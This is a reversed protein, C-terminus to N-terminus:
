RSEFTLAGAELVIAPTNGNAAGVGVGACDLWVGLILWTELYPKKKLIFM